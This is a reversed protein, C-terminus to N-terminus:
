QNETAFVEAREHNCRSDPDATVQLRLAHTHAVWAEQVEDPVHHFSMADKLIQLRRDFHGGLIRHQAHAKRMPRGTYSIHKAGLVRAAFEVERAILHEKDKGWFLYGIMVDEFVRDYFTTLVARLAPEGGM